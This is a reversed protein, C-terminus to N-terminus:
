CCKNFLSDKGWKTNKGKNYILQGYFYPNMEPSERYETGNIFTNKQWYCSTKIETAEYYLKFDPFTIGRAKNKKRM